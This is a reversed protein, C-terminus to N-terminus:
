YTVIFKKHYIIVVYDMISVVICITIFVKLLLRLNTVLYKLIKHFHVFKNSTVKRQDPKVTM